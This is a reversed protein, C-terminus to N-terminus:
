NQAHLLHKTLHKKIAEWRGDSNLNQLHRWRDSYIHYLWELIKNSLTHDNIIGRQNSM